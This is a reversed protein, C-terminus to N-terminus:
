NLWNKFKVKENKLEVIEEKKLKRVKEMLIGMEEVM